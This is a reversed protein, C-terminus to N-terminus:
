DHDAGHNRGSCSCECNHGTASTCRHDCKVTKNKVGNIVQGIMTRGCLECTWGCPGNLSEVGSPGLFFTESIRMDGFRDPTRVHRIPFKVRKAVRHGAARECPKCCRYLVIITRPYREHDYVHIANM